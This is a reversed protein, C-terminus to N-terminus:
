TSRTSRTRRTPPWRSRRPTPVRSPSRTPLARRPDGDRGGERGARPHVDTPTESLWPVDAGATCEEFGPLVESKNVANFGGPSGGIKYFGCAGGGRFVTNNSNAIPTWSNGAPDYAFGQNTIATSGATVGGSLLLLGDAAVAAGGWLDIPIDAIPSWADAAPDTATVPPSTAPTRQDWRCYM